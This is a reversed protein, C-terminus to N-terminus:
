QIRPLAVHFTTGAGLSSSLSITGGHTEAIKRSIALGAGRGGGYVNEGHLRRFMKFIDNHYRDEIGIGNDKIDIIAKDGDICSSIEILAASTDGHYLMANDLLYRFMNTLQQLNGRVDPLANLIRAPINLGQILSNIISDTSVIQHTGSQSVVRSLTLLDDQMGSLRSIASDIFGKYLRQDESLNEGLTDLLLHSFDKVHRLPASLDHSIINVFEEYEKLVKEGDIHNM